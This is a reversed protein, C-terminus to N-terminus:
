LFPLLFLSSQMIYPDFESGTFRKVAQQLFPEDRYWDLSQRKQLFEEFTYTNKGKTTQEQSATNM